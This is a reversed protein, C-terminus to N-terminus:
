KNNRYYEDIDPEYYNNDRLQKRETPTYMNKVPRVAGKEDPRVDGKKYPDRSGYPDRGYGGDTVIQRGGGMRRINDDGEFNKQPAVKGEIVNQKALYAPNYTEATNSKPLAYKEIRDNPSLGKQKDKTVFEGSAPKGEAHIVNVKEGPRTHRVTVEDSDDKPKDKIDPNWKSFSEKTEKAKEPNVRRESMLKDYNHSNLKAPRHSLGKGEHNRRIAERNNALSDYGKSRYYDMKEKDTMDSVKKSADSKNVLKEKDKEAARPVDAKEREPKVTSNEVGEFNGLRSM